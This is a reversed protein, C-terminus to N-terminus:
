GQNSRFHDRLLRSILVVKRMKSEDRLLVNRIEDVLADVEADVEEQNGGQQNGNGGPVDCPQTTEPESLATECDNVDSCERTQSRDSCEAWETCEWEEVCGVAGGVAVEVDTSVVEDNFISNRDNTSQGTAVASITMTGGSVPAVFNMTGVSGAPQRRGFLLALSRGADIPEDGLDYFLPSGLSGATVEIDALEFGRNREFVIETILGCEFSSGAPVRDPCDLRITGLALPFLVLMVVLSSIIIKNM